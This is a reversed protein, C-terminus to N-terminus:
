NSKKANTLKKNKIEILLQSAIDIYLQPFTAFLIDDDTFSIYYRPFHELIFNNDKYDIYEPDNPYMNALFKNTFVWAKEEEENLPEGKKFKEKCINCTNLAYKFQILIEQLQSDSFKSLQLKNIIHMIKKEM